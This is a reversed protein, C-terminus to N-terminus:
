EILWDLVSYQSPKAFKVKVNGIQQRRFDEMPRIFQDMANDLKLFYPSFYILDRCSLCKFRGAFVSSKRDNKRSIACFDASNRSHTRYPFRMTLWVGALRKLTLSWWINRWNSRSVHYRQSFILFIAIFFSCHRFRFTLCGGCHKILNQGCIGVCTRM